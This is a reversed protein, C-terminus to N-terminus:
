GLLRQMNELALIEADVLLQYVTKAEGTTEFPVIGFGQCVKCDVVHRCPRRFLGTGNCSPCVNNSCFAAIAREIARPELSRSTLERVVSTLLGLRKESHPYVYKVLLLNYVYGPMGTCAHAIDLSSLNGYGRGVSGISSTKAALRTLREASLSTGELIFRHM